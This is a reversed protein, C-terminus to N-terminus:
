LNLTWIELIIERKFKLIDKNISNSEKVLNISVVGTRLKNQKKHGGEFFLSYIAKSIDTPRNTPRYTQRDTSCM